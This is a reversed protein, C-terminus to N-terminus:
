GLLFDKVKQADNNLILTEDFEMEELLKYALSFDGVTSPDHSDTNVIIPVRYEMCQALMIRYNEFCNKRLFPKRLSSNNVELATGTAKAGQVLAPYIYVKALPYRRRLINIIDRVAAGTPSTVVGIREPFRPIPRKYSEDFLGEASLRAKLQEYALYLSGVGDPQM